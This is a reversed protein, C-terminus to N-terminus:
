RAPEEAYGGRPQRSWPMRDFWVRSQSHSQNPSCDVDTRVDVHLVGLILVKLRDRWDLHVVVFTSICDAAWEPLPEWPTM